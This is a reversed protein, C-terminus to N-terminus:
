NIKMYDDICQQTVPLSFKELVETLAQRASASFHFLTDDLDALIVDYKM